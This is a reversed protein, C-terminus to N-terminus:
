ARWVLQIPNATKKWLCGPAFGTGFPIPKPTIGTKFSQSHVEGSTPDKANPDLHFGCDDFSPEAAYIMRQPTMISGCDGICYPSGCNFPLPPTTSTSYYTTSPAFVNTSSSSGVCCKCYYYYTTKMTTPDYSSTYLYQPAACNCGTTTTGLVYGRNSGCSCEDCRCRSCRRRRGWASATEPFALATAGAGLGAAALFERRTKM